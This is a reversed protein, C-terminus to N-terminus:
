NIPYLADVNMVRLKLENLDADTHESWWQDRWVELGHFRQRDSSRSIIHFLAANKTCLVVYARRGCKPNNYCHYCAAAQIKAEESKRLENHNGNWKSIQADNMPTTTKGGMKKADLATIVPDPDEGVALKKAKNRFLDPNESVDATLMFKCAHFAHEVTRYTHGEYEFDCCRWFNSLVKRFGIPSLPKTHDKADVGNFRIVSLVTVLDSKEHDPHLEEEAGKGAKPKDASKSYFAYVSYHPEVGEYRERISLPKVKKAAPASESSMNLQTAIM